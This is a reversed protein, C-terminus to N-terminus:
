GQRRYREKIRILSQGGIKREDVVEYRQLRQIMRWASTRPIDFRERIDYAFAEGDNEALFKLVERDDLRLEPHEEFLRELYIEVKVPTVVTSERRQLYFYAGVALLILPGAIYYLTNNAKKESKFAAELAQDAYLVAQKYEGSNYHTEAEQLLNKAEDLGITKGSQQAVQVAIEAEDIKVEALIKKETTEAVLEVIQYAKEEADLYYEQQFLNKAEVLLLQAENVIVGNSTATLIAEEASQIAEAVLSESDLIDVTYQIDVQGVPMILMTKSNVTDIELPITNLNIITAGKLLVIEASIPVTLSLSWLVSIKSTLETTLYTVNILRSGLSNVVYGESSEEFELPLGDENVIFLDQLNEGILSINTQLNTVEAQFLYDIRTVGDSQVNVSIEQPTTEAWVPTVQVLSLFLLIIHLKNRM